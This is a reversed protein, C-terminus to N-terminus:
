QTIAPRFESGQPNELVAKFVRCPELIALWVREGPKLGHKLFWDRFPTGIIEGCSKTWFSNKNINFVFIQGDLAVQIPSFGRRFHQERVLKGGLIKLGWGNDGNNWVSCKIAIMYPELTMQTEM